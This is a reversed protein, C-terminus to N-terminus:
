RRFVGGCTGLVLATLSCLLFLGISTVILLMKIWSIKENRDNYLSWAIGGFVAIGFCAILIILLFM